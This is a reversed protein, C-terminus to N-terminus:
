GRDVDPKLAHARGQQHLVAQLPETRAARLAACRALSLLASLTEGTVRRPDAQRMAVFDHEIAQRVSEPIDHPLLQAAAFYARLGELAHQDLVPAQSAHVPALRVTADVQM